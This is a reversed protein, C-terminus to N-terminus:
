ITSWFRRFPGALMAFKLGNTCWPAGAATQCLKALGNRGPRQGCAGWQTLRVDGVFHADAPRRHPFCQAVQFFFAQDFLDGKTPREHCGDRRLCHGLDGADPNLQLGAGDGQGDRPEGVGAPFRQAVYQTLEVAGRAPIGGDFAMQCEVAKEVLV